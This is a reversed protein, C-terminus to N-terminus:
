TDVIAPEVTNFIKHCDNNYKIILLLMVLPTSYLPSTQSPFFQCSKENQANPSSFNPLHISETLFTIIILVFKSPKLKAFRLHNALNMLSEVWWVKGSYPM